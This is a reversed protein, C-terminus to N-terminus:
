IRGFRPMTEKDVGLRILMAAAVAITLGGAGKGVASIYNEAFIGFHKAFGRAAETAKQGELRELLANLRRLEGVLNALDKLYSARELLLDPPPRNHGKPDYDLAEQLATILTGAYYKAEVLRDRDTGLYQDVALGVISTVSVDKSSAERRLREVLTKQVVISTVPSPIPKQADSPELEAPIETIARTREKWHAVLARGLQLEGSRRVRATLASTPKIAVALARRIIEARGRKSLGGLDHILKEIPRPFKEAAILRHDYILQSTDPKSRVVDYRGQLDYKCRSGRRLTEDVINCNPSRKVEL